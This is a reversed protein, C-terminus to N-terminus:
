ASRTPGCVGALVPLNKVIPLVEERWIWSSPM